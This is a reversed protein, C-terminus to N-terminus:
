NENSFKLKVTQLVTRFNQKAFNRHLRIQQTELSKFFWSYNWHNKVFNQEQEWGGWFPLHSDRLLSCLRMLRESQPLSFFNSFLLRAAARFQVTGQNLCRAGLTSAEACPDGVDSGPKPVLSFNQISVESIVRRVWRAVGRCHVVANLLRKM